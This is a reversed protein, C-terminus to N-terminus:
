ECPLKERVRWSGVCNGNVDYFKGQEGVSFDECGTQGVLRSRLLCDKVDQNNRMADNGLEIEIILKM